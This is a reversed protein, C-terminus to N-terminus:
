RRPPPQHHPPQHHSTQHSPQHHPPQRHQPPPPPQRRHHRDHPELGLIKDRLRSWVDLQQLSHEVDTQVSVIQQINHEVNSQIDPAANAPNVTLAGILAAGILLKEM